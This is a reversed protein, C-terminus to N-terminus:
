GDAAGLYAERVLPDAQIEAPTGEAIKRGFNLVAVRACADMVLRVDHEILIITLGGAVLETMLSRLGVSETPNMGAAPEDLILLRPESALARAIELRRQDGYALEGALAGARARLGVRDLLALAAARDGAGAARFPVLRALVDSRMRVHRGVLVNELVSLGKFLRVGQFTRALGLYTLRHAPSATVDAGDFRVAGADARLQGSLLNILTTKGAGNPGILGFVQGPAVSLDIGDVATVGGFRKTLGATELLM